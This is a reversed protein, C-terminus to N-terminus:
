NRSLGLEAVIRPIREKLQFFGRRAHPWAFEDWPRRVRSVRCGAISDAAPGVPAHATVVARGAAWEAIDAASDLLLAPVGFHARARDLGDALAGAAFAAVPAAVGLHAQSGTAPLAAVGRVTMGALPLSEPALDDEHLLLAIDGGPRPDGAPLAPVPVRGDEPLPEAHEDLQGQPDFRGGTYRRINDARAVYNKGLTHLGAVWRWSLTNSAPDGDLLHRMFFDAGLAWPLRLTFIWISAFWMRTHNHLWNREVLERAWADFCAVGTRGETADHYARRLGAETALRDHDRGVATRYAAWVGPRSELWGKWYTRWFVEQVFKEAARAGQADLAAAALEQELVLRHRVYPSLASVAYAGDPGPDANRGSAYARGMRPVFATMRALAASRTPTM